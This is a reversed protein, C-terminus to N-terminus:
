VRRDSSKRGEANGVVDIREGSQVITRTSRTLAEIVIEKTPLNADLSAVKLLVYEVSFVCEIWKLFVDSSSAPANLRNQSETSASKPLFADISM